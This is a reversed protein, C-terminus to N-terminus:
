FRQALNRIDFATVDTLQFSEYPDFHTGNVSLDIADHGAFTTKRFGADRGYFEVTSM